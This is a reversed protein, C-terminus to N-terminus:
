FYKKLFYKEQGVPSWRWIHIVIQEDVIHWSFETVETRLGPVM